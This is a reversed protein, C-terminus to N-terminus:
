VSIYKALEKGYWTKAAELAYKIGERKYYWFSNYKTAIWSFIEFLPTDFIVPKLATKRLTMEWFFIAQKQPNPPLFPNPEFKDGRLAFDLTGVAREAAVKVHNPVPIGMYKSAVTDLAVPDISAMIIDCIKTIGTRPANGEMCITGDAVTYALKPKLFSTIDAIADDVVLHYQHRVRPVVGWFHKLSCTLGTLCHTKMVPLSVIHDAELVCLPVDLTKFVKGNIEIRVLKDKSLNQFKAGYKDGLKRHGWIRSAKDCQRAAALDADGFTVEYGNESLEKLVEDLVLPSTCQGPVFESSILNVKVFIKNGPLLHKKWLPAMAAKTAEQVGGPRPRVRIFLVESMERKPTQHEGEVAVNDSAEQLSPAM